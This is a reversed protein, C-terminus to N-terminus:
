LANQRVTGTSMNSEAWLIRRTDGLDRVAGRGNPRPSVRAASFRMSSHIPRRHRIASFLIEHLLLPVAFNKTTVRTIAFSITTM